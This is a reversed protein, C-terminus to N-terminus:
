TVCSRPNLLVDITIGSLGQPSGPPLSRTGQRSANPLPHLFPHSNPRPLHTPLPPFPQSLTPTRNVPPQTPTHIKPLVPSFICSSGHPPFVQILLQSNTNKNTRQEKTTKNKLLNVNKKKLLATAAHLAMECLELTFFFFLDTQGSQGWRGNEKRSYGPTRLMRVSGAGKHTKQKENRM